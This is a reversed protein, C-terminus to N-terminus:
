VPIFVFIFYRISTDYSGSLVYNEEENLYVCKISGAHGSIKLDLETRNEMEIFRIKRDKSGTVILNGGDTHFVRHPDDRFFCLTSTKVPLITIFTRFYLIRIYLLQNLRLCVSSVNSYSSM